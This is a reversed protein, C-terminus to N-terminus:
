FVTVVVVNHEVTVICTLDDGDRDFGPVKWRDNEPEHVCRVAHLLATLVDDVKAGRQEMRDYAHPSIKVQRAMAAGHILALAAAPTM